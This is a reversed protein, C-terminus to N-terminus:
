SLAAPSRRGSLPRRQGGAHPPPTPSAGKGGAGEETHFQMHRFLVHTGHGPGTKWILPGVHPHDALSAATCHRLAQGQGQGRGAVTSLAPGSEGRVRWGGRRKGAPHTRAPGWGGKPEERGTEATVTRLSRVERKATSNAATNQGLRGMGGKERQPMATSHDRQDSEGVEGEGSSSCARQQQGTAGFRTGTQTPDKPPGRERM